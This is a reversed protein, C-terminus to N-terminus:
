VERFAPYMHLGRQGVLPLEMYNDGYLLKLHEDYGAIVKFKEREFDLEIYDDYGHSKPAIWPVLNVTGVNSSKDFSFKYVEDEIKKRPDEITLGKINRAIYYFFWENRLRVNEYKLRNAERIDDPFGRIPLIDIGVNTRYDGLGFYYEYMVTRTDVMRAFPQFFSDETKWNVIKYKGDSYQMDLMKLYDDLPMFVDIDDDWPIFGHHRVAGIMTGGFLSYRLGHEDCLQKFEKLIEFLLLQLKRKRLPYMSKCLDTRRKQYEGYGMTYEYLNFIKYGRFGYEVLQKSFEDYHTNAMFFIVDERNEIEDMSKIYVIRSDDHTAYDKYPVIPVGQMFINNDVVNFSDIGIELLVSYALYCWPHAGLWVVNKKKEKIFIDVLNNFFDISINETKMEM